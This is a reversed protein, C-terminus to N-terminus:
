LTSVPHTIPVSPCHKQYVDNVLVVSEETQLSLYHVSLIKVVLEAQM